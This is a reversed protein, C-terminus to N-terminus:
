FVPVRAAVPLKPLHPNSGSNIFLYSDDTIVWAVPNFMYISGGVLLKAKGSIWQQINNALDRSFERLM